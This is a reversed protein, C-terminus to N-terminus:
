DPPPQGRGKLLRNILYIITFAVSVLFIVFIFPGMLGDSSMEIVALSYFLVLFISLFTVLVVIAASLLFLFRDRSM